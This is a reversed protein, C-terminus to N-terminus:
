APARAAVLGALEETYPVPIGHKSGSRLIPGAIADLEPVRGAEVDKQMSSRTEAPASAMLTRLLEGDVHAGVARAVAFVENQCGRFREDERVAGLPRDLATTALAFPALVALKDWLLSVEDPRVRTDLGAAQLEAAVDEAGSLDVLLFPSLQRIHATAARESEVRIAGAVVNAYRERLFAVHDVGNLFPIVVAEGVQEPPALALAAELAPAKPAVWLVDVARDLQATAPVEVEFDGLVVSEVVLRGGYGELTEPRMILVVDAGARALAGGILGGIGGVGLIAHHVSRITDAGGTLPL